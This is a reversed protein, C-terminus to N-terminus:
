RRTTTTVSLTTAASMDATRNSEAMNQLNNLVVM